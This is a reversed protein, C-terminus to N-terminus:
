ARETTVLASLLLGTLGGVAILGCWFTATWWTPGMALIAVAYVAFALGPLAVAFIRTGNPNARSPRLWLALGAAIAGGAVSVILFAPVAEPHLPGNVLTMVAMNGGVVLAIWVPSVNGSRTTLLMFGVLLAAYATFAFLAEGQLLQGIDHSAPPVGAGFVRAFPNAYDVIVTVISLGYLTSLAAPLGFSRRRWAVRAPGTVVLLIAGAIILHSPSVAADIDFEIGFVTHWIADAVGGLAGIGFGILSLDYGAALAANRQYRLVFLFAGCALLGSYLVGHWPTWFSDPLHSIHAWADSFVGTMLWGALVVFVRDVSRDSLAPFARARTAALDSSSM